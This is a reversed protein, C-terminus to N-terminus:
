DAHKPEVNIKFNDLYSKYLQICKRGKGVKAAMEHFAEVSDTVLFVHTIDKREALKLAFDAFQVENLLVCFPCGKPFHHKGGGKALELDGSAGAMMWLIPLIAEYTAGRKVEAPDLFDLSFYEINEAFGESAPFQRESRVRLPDLSTRAAEAIASFEAKSQTVIFLNEIGVEENVADIWEESKGTDWLVSATGSEELHWPAEQKVEGLTTGPILRVIAKRADLSMTRGDAIPLHIFTRAQEADEFTASAYEGAISVGKENRGLLASKCRPWTVAAAIGLREWKPDGESVGDHALQLRDAEALENNTVLVSRRRGGDSKNLLAVAHLTTGSGAFFDLILASPKDAVLTALTDRVVYLSKPFEFARNGLLNRIIGSGYTGADHATRHWVTKARRRSGIGEQYELIVPGGNWETGVVVLDGREIERIPGRKLYNVAWAHRAEDYRGLKAFGRDKLDLLTEPKVQWSGLAGDSRIPWAENKSQKPKFSDLQARTIEGRALKKSLPEGVGVIRNKADVVIPYVLGPRDSPAANTGRRLLSAWPSKKKANAPPSLFDDPTSSASAQGQFVFHAYEEVRALGQKAVGRSTIVITAMQRYADPFVQELLMGLHHVEHEDITVVLVGDPKLLQKALVLRKHVFSLWKSHRWPDNTDVFDNNYRWDRAGTNYPPDIYIVDVQGEYCYLLVQLAHFNDANILTHYPKGPARTVRDVPVLAPYMPEGFRKVVVLDDKAAVEEPGGREPLIKVKKGNVTATVVYFGANKETRKAVRAGPQVALGHLQVVEPLHEEFVLGFKKKAKLKAVEGAIQERLRPDAIQKILDEVAAM